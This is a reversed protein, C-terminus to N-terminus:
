NVLKHLDLITSGIDFAFFLIPLILLHLRDFLLFLNIANEVLRVRHADVVKELDPIHVANNNAGHTHRNIHIYRPDNVLVYKGVVFIVM